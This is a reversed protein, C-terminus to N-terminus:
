QTGGMLVFNSYIRVGADASFCGEDPLNAVTDEILYEYASEWSRVEKTDVCRCSVYERENGVTSNVVIRRKSM